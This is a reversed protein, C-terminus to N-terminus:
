FGFLTGIIVVSRTWVSAQGRNAGGSGTEAVLDPLNAHNSVRPLKPAPRSPILVSRTVDPTSTSAPVEVDSGSLSPPASTNASSGRLTPSTGASSPGPSVENEVRFTTTTFRRWDFMAGLGPSSSGGLDLKTM